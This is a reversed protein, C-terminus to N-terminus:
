KQFSSTLGTITEGISRVVWFVSIILLFLYWDHLLYTVLSVGVWFLGFVVADGWAIVGLLNLYPTLGYANKRYKCERYGKLFVIVNISAYVM